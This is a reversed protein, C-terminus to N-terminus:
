VGAGEIRTPVGIWDPNSGPRCAWIANEDGMALHWGRSMAWEMAEARNAFKPSFAIGEADEWYPRPDSTLSQLLMM